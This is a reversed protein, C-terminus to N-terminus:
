YGNNKVRKILKDFWNKRFQESFFFEKNKVLRDYNKNYLNYMNPQHIDILELMKDIRHLLNPESDYVDHSFIDDFIDFGMEKLTRMSNQGNVSFLFQGSAFPKVTKETFYMIYPDSEVCINACADNFAIHNISVDNPIFSTKYLSSNLFDHKTKEPLDDFAPEHISILKGPIDSDSITISTFCDNFYSRKSLEVFNYIRATALRRNICSLKYQRQKTIDANEWSMSRLIFDTPFFIANGHLFNNNTHLVLVNNVDLNSLKAVVIEVPQLESVDVLITHEKTNVFEVLWDPIVLEFETRTWNTAWETIDTWVINNPLQSFFMDRIDSTDSYNLNNRM